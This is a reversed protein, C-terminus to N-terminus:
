GLGEEDGVVPPIYNPNQEEQELLKMLMDQQTKELKGQAEPRRNMFEVLKQLIPIRGWESKEIEKNIADHANGVRKNKFSRNALNEMLNNFSSKYKKIVLGEDEPRNTYSDIYEQARAGTYKDRQNLM